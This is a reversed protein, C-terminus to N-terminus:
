AAPANNDFLIDIDNKTPENNKNSKKEELSLIKETLILCKM